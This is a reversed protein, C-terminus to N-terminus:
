VNSRGVTARRSIGLLDTRDHSGRLLFFVFFVTRAGDLDELPELGNTFTGTHVDPRCASATQVMQDPLHDVVGDVLGHRAEGVLNVDPKEVVATYFDGIVTATDRHRHMLGANRGDVHHHGHQVGAALELLAGVLDRTTQVPHTDRNDVCQGGSQLGIDAAVAVLPELGVVIGDGATDLLALGGLLTAARDSEPSVRIDELGGIIVEVGDLLAQALHGEEVLTQGDIERILPHRRLFDDVLDDAVGGFCGLRGLLDGGFLGLRGLLDHVAGEVVRAAQDIEDLVDVAGLLRDGVADHVEGALTLAVLHLDRHLPVGAVRLGHEGEGVGDVGVLATRM